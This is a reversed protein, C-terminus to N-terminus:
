FAAQLGLLVVHSRATNDSWTSGDPFNGGSVFNLPAYGQTYIYEGFLDVSPLVRNAVGAVWQNQRSWPAGHPGARFQSFEFSLTLDHPVIPAAYRAGVTFATVKHAPYASLPNDPDPVQTGPWVRTTHAIEGALTVRRYVLRGYAAWAPVNNECGQFHGVPYDQCYATANQYSGGLKLSADAALRFTYNADVAFNNLKSPVATGHVPANAARFQAGGQVLMARIHFGGGFYGVQAGYALGAFAHWNTSNTFPSVTDNVGFPVDMKGIAAYFPSKALNGWLLFAKRLEVQNRNVDTITGSGFSQEPNYLLEAYGSLNGSFGVTAQFQASHIVAESVHGGIQNASTPHRMLYAFKSNRNSSQWDTIATISGGLTVASPLAGAARAELLMLPRTNVNEAHDLMRYTYTSNFGIVGGASAGGTAEGEGAPTTGAATATEASAQVPAPQPVPASPAGPAAAVAPAQAGIADLRAVLAAADPDDAAKARLYALLARNVAELREM